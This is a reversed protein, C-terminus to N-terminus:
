YYHPLKVIFFQISFSIFVLMGELVLFFVFFFV